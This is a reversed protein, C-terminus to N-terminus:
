ELSEWEGNYNTYHINKKEFGLDLLYKHCNPCPKAMSFGRPTQRVIYIEAKKFADKGVRNSVQKCADFEAHHSSFEVLPQRSSVCVRKPHTKRNNKGVFLSKNIKM